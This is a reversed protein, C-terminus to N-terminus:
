WGFSFDNFSRKNRLPRRPLVVRVVGDDFFAQIGAADVDRPVRFTESFKGFHGYGIRAYMDSITSDLAEKSLKRSLHRVRSVIASRIQSSQSKSPLCLGSVTLKQSREDTELRLTRSHLNPLKAFIIYADRQERFQFDVPLELAQWTETEADQTKSTSFTARAASM